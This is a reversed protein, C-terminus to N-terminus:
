MNYINFSKFQFNESNLFHLKIQTSTVVSIISLGLHKDSKFSSNIAFHGGFNIKITQPCVFIRKKAQPSSFSGNQPLKILRFSIKKLDM